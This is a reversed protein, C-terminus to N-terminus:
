IDPRLKAIELLFSASARDFLSLKRGKLKRDESRGLCILLLQDDPPKFRLQDILAARASAYRPCSLIVHEITEEAGCHNCHPSDKMKRRHLPSNFLTSNLRLRSRLAIVAPPDARLHHDVRTPHEHDFDFNKLFLVQPDKEKMRKLMDMAAAEKLQQSSIHQDHHLNLRAEIERIKSAFSRTYAPTASPIVDADADADALETQFVQCAPNQPHKQLSHAYSIASKLWLSEVDLLRSNIFLAAHSTTAFVSLSRKIPLIILRDLVHRQTANFQVVPFGYTIIPHVQTKILDCVIPLTPHQGRQITHCIRHVALRVKPLIHNFHADWKGNKHFIVGLYRAKEEVPLKQNCLKFEPDRASAPRGQSAKCATEFIVVCSKKVNFIM